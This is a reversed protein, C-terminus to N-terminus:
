IWKNTGIFYFFSISSLQNKQNLSKVGILMKIVYISRLFLDLKSELQKALAYMPVKFWKNSSVALSTKVM